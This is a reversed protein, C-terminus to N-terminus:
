RNKWSATQYNYILIPNNQFNFYNWGRVESNFTFPFIGPRTWWWIMEQYDWVWYGENIIDQQIFLWGLQNHYLWQGESSYFYGFWDSSYWASNNASKISNLILSNGLQLQGSVTSQKGDSDSLLINLSITQNAQLIFDDHDQVILKGSETLSFTNNGDLDLDQNGAIISYYIAGGEPDSANVEHLVGDKWEEGTVSLTFSSGVPPLNEPEPIVPEEVPNLADASGLELQGTVFSQKGDSDSLLINLSITQNAQLIFDDHDQVILKGIESLSFTNNGDLDLDQNGDIISYNVVGGEPDSANVEHLV